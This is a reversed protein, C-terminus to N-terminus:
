RLNSIKELLLHITGNKIHKLLFGERFRDSRVIYTLYGTLTELSTSDDFDSLDKVGEVVSKYNNNLLPSDHFDTIFETVENSTKVYPFIGKKIVMEGALDNNIARKFFELHKDFNKM